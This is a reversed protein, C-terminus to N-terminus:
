RGPKPASYVFVPQRFQNVIVMLLVGLVFGKFMFEYFLAWELGLLWSAFGGVLTETANVPGRGLNALTTISLLKLASFM